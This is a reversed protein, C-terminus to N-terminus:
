VRNIDNSDNPFESEFSKRHLKVRGSGNMIGNDDLMLKNRTSITMDIDVSLPGNETMHESFKADISDIVMNELVLWNGITVKVTPPSETVRLDGNMIEDVANGITKKVINMSEDVVATGTKFNKFSNYLKKYEERSKTFDVNIKSSIGSIISNLIEKFPLNVNIRPMSLGMLVLFTVIPQGINEEDLIKFSVPLSLFSGGTYFKKSQLTTGVQIGGITTVARLGEKILTVTPDNGILSGLATDLELEGWNSSTNLNVGGNLAGIVVIGEDKSSLGRGGESEIMIKYAGSDKSIADVFTDNSFLSINDMTNLFGHLQAKMKTKQLSPTDM